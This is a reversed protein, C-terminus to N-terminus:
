GQCRTATEEDPLILLFDEPMSHHITLSEIDIDFMHAVETLVEMGFVELRTRIVMVFLARRLAIEERALKSSFDLVFSPTL